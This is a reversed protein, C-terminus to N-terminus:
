QKLIMGVTNMYPLTNKNGKDTYQSIDIRNLDRSVTCLLFM